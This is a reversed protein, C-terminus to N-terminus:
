AGLLAEVIGDTTEWVRGNLEGARTRAVVRAVRDEVDAAAALLRENGHKTGLFAVLTAFSLILAVPNAKGQGAIDPASGHTAQALGFSHEAAMNLSGAFGLGGVLAATESSLIDGFMNTTVLVDFREPHMVLETAAADVHIDDLRVAPHQEAVTQVADLFVGDSLRLVNAKHVATVHPETGTRAARSLALAFAVRAVRESADRTVVRVAMGVDPAPMFEGRGVAMNRDAYFGQTNERVIVLDVNEFRGLGLRSATPRVNANLEFRTRLMASVNRQFPSELDLTHTTLPGLLVADTRDLVDLTEGPMTTGSESLATLGVPLITAELVMAHAALVAEAVALTASTIEPGIGDGALVPLTLTDDSVAPTRAQSTM